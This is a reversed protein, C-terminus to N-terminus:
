PSRRANGGIWTAHLAGRLEFPSTVSRVGDVTAGVRWAAGVRVEATARAYYASRPAAPDDGDLAAAAELMADVRAGVPFTGAARLVTLAVVGDDRRSLHVLAQAGNPRPTIRARVDFRTALAPGQEDLTRGPVDLLRLAAEAGVAFGRTVRWTAGGFFEDYVPGAFASLISWRPILAAVDAHSWGASVDWRRAPMVLVDARAQVVRGGGADLVVAGRIDVHSSPSWVGDGSAVRQGPIGETWREMWAASLALRGPDLYRARVGWAAAVGDFSGVPGIAGDHRPTVPRGAVAELTFGSFPKVEAGVGDVHLGGPLGWEVFRRGGWLAGARGAFRAWGLALDGAALQEHSAALDIAGWGALHVEVRGSMLGYADLSAREYLPATTVARWFRQEVGAPTEEVTLRPQATVRFYLDARASIRVPTPVDRPGEARAVPAALALGFALAVFPRRM